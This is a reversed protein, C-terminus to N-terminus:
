TEDIKGWQVWASSQASYFFTVIRNGGWAVHVGRADTETVAGDSNTFENRIKDGPKLAAFEQLTM